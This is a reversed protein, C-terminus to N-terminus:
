QPADDDTIYAVQVPNVLVSGGNDTQLRLFYTRHM